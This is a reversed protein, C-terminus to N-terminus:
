TVTQCVIPKTLRHLTYVLSMVLLLIGTIQLGPGHLPFFTAASPALFSLLSVGCSSCGTTMLSIAALGGVSVRVPGQKHLVAISERLLTLNTGILLATVALLVGQLAGFATFVGLFLDYSIHLKYLLSARATFTEILFRNNIFFATLAIYLFGICVVSVLARFSFFLDRVNPRISSTHSGLNAM